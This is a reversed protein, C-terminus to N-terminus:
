RGEKRHRRQKSDIQWAKILLYGLGIGGGTWMMGKSMWEPWAPNPTLQALAGIIIMWFAIKLLLIGHMRPECLKHQVLGIMILPVPEASAM